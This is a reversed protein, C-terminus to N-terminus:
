PSEGQILADHKHLSPTCHDSGFVHDWFSSTVGYYGAMELHHHTAHWRKIRKLWPNVAHWHHTAHHTIAYLLYGILVGLTLACAIWLNSLMLLPLFVLLAILTGSLLTPACILATPRRHHEAHWSRFPELGHLVFRHLAYEMATWALLGCAALAIMWVGHEAPGYVALFAALGVVTGGYLAFDARYAAKSHELNFLGM